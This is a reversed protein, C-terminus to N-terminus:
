LSSGEVEVEGEENRLETAKGEVENKDGGCDEERAETGQATTGWRLRLCYFDGAANSLVADLGYGSFIAPDTAQPHLAM